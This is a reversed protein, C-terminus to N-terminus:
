TADKRNFHIHPKQRRKTSVSIRLKKTIILPQYNSPLEQYYWNRTLKSEFNLIESGLYVYDFGLYVYDLKLSNLVQYYLSFNNFIIHTLQLVKYSADYEALVTLERMFIPYFSEM